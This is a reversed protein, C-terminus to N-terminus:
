ETRTAAIVCLIDDNSTIVKARETMFKKRKRGQLRSISSSLVSSISDLVDKTDVMQLEDRLVKKAVCMTEGVKLQDLQWAQSGPDPQYDPSPENKYPTKGKLQRVTM